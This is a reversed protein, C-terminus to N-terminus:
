AQGEWDDVLPSWLFFSVLRLSWLRTAQFGPTPIRYLCELTLSSEARLLHVAQYQSTGSYFTCQQGQSM